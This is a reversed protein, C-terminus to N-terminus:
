KKQKNCYVKGKQTYCNKQFFNNMRATFDNKFAYDPTKLFKYKKKDYEQEYCCFGLETIPKWTQSDCNYCLPRKSYLPKYYKYGLSEM